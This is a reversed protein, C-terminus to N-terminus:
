SALPESMSRAPRYSMSFGLRGSHNRGEEARSFGMKALCADCSTLRHPFTVVSVSFRCPFFLTSCLLLVSQVLQNWWKTGMSDSEFCRMIPLPQSSEWSRQAVCRHRRNSVFHEWLMSSAEGALMLCMETLTNLVKVQTMASISNIGGITLVRVREWWM